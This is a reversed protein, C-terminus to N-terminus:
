FDIKRALEQNEKDVLDGIVDFSDYTETNETDVTAEDAM